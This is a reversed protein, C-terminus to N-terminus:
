KTIHMLLNYLVYYMLPSICYIVARIRTLLYPYSILYRINQRAHTKKNYIFYNDLDGRKAIGSQLELIRKGVEYKQFLDAYTTDKCELFDVVRQLSIISEWQKEYDTKKTISNPTDHYYYLVKDYVCVYELSTLLKYSFHVDELHMRIDQPFYIHNNILFIRNILALCASTSINGCVREYFIENTNLVSYNCKQVQTDENDISINPMIRKMKCLVCNVGTNEILTFMDILYDLSITDDADVFCVYKGKAEYIGRNRAASLGLNEQHIIRIKSNLYNKVIEPGADTSGDDIIVIEFDFFRQSLISDITRRIYPGKNYLPVIVSITPTVDQENM